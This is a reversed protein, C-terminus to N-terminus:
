AAAVRMNRSWLSFKVRSSRLAGAALCRLQGVRVIEVEPRAGGGGGGGRGAVELIASLVTVVVRRPLVFRFPLM